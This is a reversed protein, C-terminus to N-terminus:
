ELPDRWLLENALHLSLKRRAGDSPLKHVQDFRVWQAPHFEADGVFLQLVQMRGIKRVDHFVKGGRLALSDDRREILFRGCLHKGFEVRAQSGLDHLFEIGLLGRVNQFLHGRVSSCVQEGVKGLFRRFLQEFLHRAM